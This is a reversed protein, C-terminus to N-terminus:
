SNKRRIMILGAAGLGLLALSAPEPVPSITINDFFAAAGTGNGNEILGLRFFTQGAPMVFGVAAFNVSVHGMFANGSACQAGNLEVEKTAGFDQAYFGSGTNVFSGLQFFTTGSFGSTDIFYDYSLNYGAPDAAAASMANYFDSGDAGHGVNGVQFGGLPLLMENNGLINIVLASPSTGFGSNSWGQSGNSEFDFTVSQSYAQVSGILLTFATALGLSHKM